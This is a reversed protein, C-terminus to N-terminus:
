KETTEIHQRWQACSVHLQQAMHRANFCVFIIYSYITDGSPVPFQFIRSRLQLPTPTPSIRTRWAPVHALALRRCTRNFQKNNFLVFDNEEYAFRSVWLRWRMSKTENKRRTAVRTHAHSWDVTFHHKQESQTDATAFCFCETKAPHGVGRLLLTLSSFWNVRTWCCRRECACVCTIMSWKITKSAHFPPRSRVISNTRAAYQVQRRRDNFM